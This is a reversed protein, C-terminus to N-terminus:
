RRGRFWAQLCTLDGRTPPLQVHALAVIRRIGAWLCYHAALMGTVLPLCAAEVGVGDVPIERHWQTAEASGM